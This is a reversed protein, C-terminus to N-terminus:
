CVPSRAVPEAPFILVAPANSSHGCRCVGALLALSVPPSPSPFFSFLMLLGHGGRGCVGGNGWGIRVGILSTM